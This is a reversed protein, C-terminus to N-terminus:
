AYVIQGAGQVQTQMTSGGFLGGLSGGLLSQGAQGAEILMGARTINGVLPVKSGFFKKAVWALGFMTVEDNLQGFPLKDSIPRAATAVPTRIAGYIVAGLVQSMLGNSSKGRSSTKKVMTTSRKTKSSRSGRFVAWAKKSIGYKKILAKPLKAM